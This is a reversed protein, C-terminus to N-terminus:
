EMWVLNCHRVSKFGCSKANCNKLVGGNAQSTESRGTTYLSSAASGVVEWSPLFHPSVSRVFAEKIKCFERETPKITEQEASMHVPGLQPLTRLLSPVAALPSSILLLVGVSWLEAIAFRGIRVFLYM